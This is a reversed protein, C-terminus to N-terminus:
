SAFHQAKKKSRQQTTEEQGSGGLSQLLLPLTLAQSIPPLQGWDVAMVGLACSEPHRAAFQLRACCTMAISSLRFERM